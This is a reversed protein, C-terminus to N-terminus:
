RGRQRPAATPAPLDPLAARPDASPPGVVEWMGAVRRLPHWLGDPTLRLQTKDSADTVQNQWIHAGAGLVAAAEQVDTPDPAWEADLAVLASRGGHQWARARRALAKESLALRKALATFAPTGLLGAARRVADDAVSLGLASDGTGTLMGWAREAADRALAHLDAARVTGPPPDSALPAPTGAKAPPLPLAPLPAVERAFADRALVGPDAVPDPALADGGRRRRLEALVDDRSRGRLLLLQFPDRDLADAVLYSVAAAHKCPDAWDPCTCRLRLDGPGPLLSLGASEVDAVLEPPLEGDLLAAAHALQASVVDLVREWQKKTFARVKVTVAYPTRRTGQVSARVEGVNVTMSLVAGSRAYGRGRSLRNPDLEARQELAELWAQGWWTEGFPRRAGAGTAAPLRAGRDFREWGDQPTVAYM